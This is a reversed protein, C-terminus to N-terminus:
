HYFAIGHYLPTCHYTGTINAGLFHLIRLQLDDEDEFSSGLQYSRAEFEWSLTSPNKTIKFDPFSSILHIKSTLQQTM